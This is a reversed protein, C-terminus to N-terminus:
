TSFAVTIGFSHEDQTWAHIKGNHATVIAKAVSLGIGYGGTESNRSPDARYFRDFVHSLSEKNVEAETTNFVTLVLTRNQKAFELSITGGPPSYKLANDMLVSVLQRIAKDNGNMSLMPQISYVFDKKQSQALARFPAATESVIESIPFEIMQLSNESEEMRALYVLDNTLSTLRNTQQQIDELCENQGLEMKLIDVNANIITLPTKIEHGADTIFQKQKKYSESIPRIIRGAFFFIPFFIIVLGALAIFISTYLFTYFSDLRRECDLFIIRVTDGESYRIYRFNGVFGCNDSDSIAKQAYEAASEADVSAIRSIDTYITKGNGNMLISFYRSEYPLEPSIHQPLRNGQGTNPTNSNGPNSTFGPFTGRNQSLLSLVEDADGIVSNYNILNMGAVILTLLVLLSTMSLIIFKIKLKRIM